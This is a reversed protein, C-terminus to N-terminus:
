RITFISINPTNIDPKGRKCYSVDSTSTGPTSTDLIGTSTLTSTNTITRSGTRRSSISTNLTSNYFTSTCLTCTDFTSTGLTSICPNSTGPISTNLNNISPNSTVLTSKNAIRKGSKSIGTSIGNFAWSQVRLM